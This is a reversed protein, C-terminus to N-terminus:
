SIGPKYSVSPEDCDYCLLMCMVRDYAMEIWNMDKEERLNQLIIKGGIDLDEL